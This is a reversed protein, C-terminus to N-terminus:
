SKIHDGFGQMVLNYMWEDSWLTTIKYKTDIVKM